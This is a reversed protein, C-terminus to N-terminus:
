AVKGHRMTVRFNHLGCSTEMVTDVYKEKRNRFTDHVIRSRKVGGIHHEVVIRQKSIERNCEKEADTLEGGRPKKKPQLITVGEPKYGQYGTDQWLKSGDPFQHGEDDALKKDHRKGEVTPSLYIIKGGARRETIINNKVTTTKKKGSYHKDRKIKDKPRNTRRETGDIVFELEPCNSLVQELKSAKREPLQQEKGLAANLVVTLRHVWMNAQAQGIGFLFGQVEQTPYQRFYFLIFLMKDKVEKVEAKRGGGYNRKREKGQINHEDIYDQWAQEFSPVLAEFEAMSMGTLSQLIRPKNQLNKYSLM